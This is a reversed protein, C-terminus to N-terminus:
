GDDRAESPSSKRERYGPNGNFDKVFFVAKLRPIPVIVRESPAANVTQWLSFQPRSPHFDQTFGKVIQGDAFRVVIKQLASDTQPVAVPAPLSANGSRNIGSAACHDILAALRSSTAGLESQMRAPLRRLRDDLAATVDQRSDGRQIAPLITGLLDM